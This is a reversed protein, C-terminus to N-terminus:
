EPRKLNWPIVNVADRLPKYIDSYARSRKHSVLITATPSETAVRLALPGFVKRGWGVQRVGLIVLDAERAAALIAATPDASRVVTVIPRVPIKMDALHRIDSRRARMVSESADEPVVSFFRVARSEARSIAGLLRARLDHDGRGGVPVLVRKADSLQWGPPARMAAFDCDVDNMLDELEDELAETNPSLNGLGLLLSECDHEEAVRRIEEWPETAATILAEPKADQEYSSSLAQRVVRQAEDLRELTPAEADDDVKVISLLLVKGVDAPALANAVAVMARAHAPNAIPMLVLPSKGRLRALSPDLAEATADAYEAGSKFLAVYLLAGLGLWVAVIGGADPVQTAQFLALTGCALGGVVPILPFAPTRFGSVAGAGRTRSLYTMVHALTFSLLFILSAAAGAAALNPVMFLIAVLTLGTAYIAMMPTRRTPHLRGLVKPLTRDVAMSLAVRSAALLNAQLASLTSLIAAIIVFWYGVRGMYSEIAVAMITDPQASALEQISGGPAGVAAVILLLPIYVVLAVGLSVFMAKPIVRQPDKIEGAIAPILDFGQLAIFTFGMATLLGTTGGPFFPSLAASTEGLPQRIVAFLGVLILIIFLVVKGITASNGGGSSSRLLLVMYAITPVIALLLQFNRGALWGPPWGGAARWIGDIALATFSAFGLAYLVGAVIYAFWLIWGVGFAARVGLFKIAFAYTGGSQPFATSIEAYSLATIFAVLGCGAFAVAASPGTNVFAVGALVLIGGGVIAGVGVGIAGTLGITRVPASTERKRRGGDSM